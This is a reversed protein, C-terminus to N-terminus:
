DLVSPKRYAISSLLPPKCSMWFRICLRLLYDPPTRRLRRAVGKLLVKFHAPEANEALEARASTGQPTQLRLDVERAWLGPIAM